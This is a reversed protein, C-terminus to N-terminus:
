RFGAVSRGKKSAKKMKNQKKDEKRKKINETRKKQVAEKKKTVQEKREDWKKKSSKKRQEQKKISKKLLGVDDKVKVGEAKDLALKWSSKDEIENVAETNGKAKLSKIKEKQKTIKQLAAKPDQKKKAKAESALDDSFDFKSFVM